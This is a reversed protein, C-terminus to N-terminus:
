GEWKEGGAQSAGAWVQGHHMLAQPARDGANEQRSLFLLSSLSKELVGWGPQAPTQASDPRDPQAGTRQQETSM